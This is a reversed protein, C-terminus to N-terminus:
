SWNSEKDPVLDDFSADDPLGVVCSVCGGLHLLSWCEALRGTSDAMNKKFVLEQKFSHSKKNCEDINNNALLDSILMMRIVSRGDGETVMGYSKTGNLEKVKYAPYPLVFEPEVLRISHMLGYSPFVPVLLPRQSLATLGDWVEEADKGETIVFEIHKCWQDDCKGCHLIGATSEFDIWEVPDRFVGWTYIQTSLPAM